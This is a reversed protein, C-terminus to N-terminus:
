SISNMSVFFEESVSSCALAKYEKRHPEMYGYITTLVSKKFELDDANRIDMYGLLVDGLEPVSAVASDVNTNRKSIYYKPFSDDEVERVVMNCCQELLYEANGLLRSAENEVDNKKM